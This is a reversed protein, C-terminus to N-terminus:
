QSTTSVKSFDHRGLFLSVLLAASLILQIIEEKNMQLLADINSIFM